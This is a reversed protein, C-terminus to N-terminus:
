SRNTRGIHQRGGQVLLSRRDIDCAPGVLQVVDRVSAGGLRRATDDELWDVATAFWGDRQWPQLSAPQEGRFWAELASRDRPDVLDLRPFDDQTCWRGRAAHPDLVPETLYVVADEPPPMPGFRIDRLVVVDEGVLERLTPAVDIVIEPEASWDRPLAWGAGDEVLLVSSSGDPIVFRLSYAM